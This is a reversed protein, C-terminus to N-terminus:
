RERVVALLRRLDEIEARLRALEDITRRDLERTRTDLTQIARLSVGSLDVHGISTDDVGLGFAARFDQATPGIHRVGPESKYSWRDIPMAALKALVEEGDVTEFDQKQNRDSTCTWVGSGAALNCGTSATQNTRLRVGGQARVAFESDAATGFITDSGALAKGSFTFAGGHLTGTCPTGFVPASSTAAYQGLAVSGSGCASVHLGLAVAAYGLARASNGMALASFGTAETGDGGALSYNGRASSESGFAVSGQGSAVTLQGFATSGVGYDDPVVSLPWGARLASKGSYWALAPGTGAVPLAGSGLTGRAVFGGDAQFTFAAPPVAGDVYARTTANAGDVYSKTAADTPQTPPGVNTIRAGGAALGAPFTATAAPRPSGTGPGDLVLTGSNGVSDSWPGGLTALSVSARVAVPAASPTTVLQLGFGITGDPNPTALGVLPARTPAGCQDDYGDLTYVAGSQTVNVTVVNCYPQLQWRFTGLTQADVPRHVPLMALMAVAAVRTRISSM